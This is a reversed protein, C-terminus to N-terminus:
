TFINEYWSLWKIRSIFYPHAKKNWGKLCCYIWINTYFFVDHFYNLALLNSQQLLIWLYAFIGRTFAFIVALEIIYLKTIKNCLKVMVDRPLHITFLDKLIYFYLYNKFSIIFELLFYRIISQISHHRYNLKLLDVKTM